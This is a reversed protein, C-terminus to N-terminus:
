PAQKVSEEISPSLVSRPFRERFQAAAREAEGTKGLGALARVRLAEREERLVGDPFRRQHLAIARLAATHDGKAVAARARELVALELADRAATASQGSVATKTKRIQREEPEEPEAPEAAIEAPAAPASPVVPQRPKPPSVPPAPTAVVSATRSQARHWAGYAVAALAMVLTAALLFAPRRRAPRRAPPSEVARWATRARSLVRQRTGEPESEFDREKALLSAADDSLPRLWKM